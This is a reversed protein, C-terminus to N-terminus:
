AHEAGKDRKTNRYDPWDEVPVLLNPAAEVDFMPVDECALPKGQKPPKTRFEDCKVQDAM